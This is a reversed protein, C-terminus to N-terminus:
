DDSSREPQAKVYDDYVWMLYSDSKPHKLYVLTRDLTDSRSIVEFQIGSLLLDVTAQTIIGCDHRLQNETAHITVREGVM